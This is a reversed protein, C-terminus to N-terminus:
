KKWAWSALVDDFVPLTTEWEQKPATVSAFLVQGGRMMAVQRSRLGDAGPKLDIRIGAEGDVTVPRTGALSDGYEGLLERRISGIDAEAPAPDELFRVSRTVVIRAKTADGATLILDVALPGVVEDELETLDLWGFPLEVSYAVPARGAAKRSLEITTPKTAGAGLDGGFEGAQDLADEVQSTVENTTDSVTKFISSIFYLGGGVIAIVFLLVVAGIIKGVHWGSGQPTLERAAQMADSLSAIGSFGSTGPAAPAGGTQAFGASDVLPSASPAGAVPVQASAVTPAQAAQTTAFRDWDFILRSPNNPDVKVPVRSQPGVRSAFWFPVVERHTTTTPAFGSGTVELDFAYMPQNNVMTGTEHVARIVAEGPIGTHYIRARRRGRVKLFVGIVFLVIGVGLLIVASFDYGGGTGPARRAAVVSGIGIALEVFSVFILWTGATGAAGHEKAKQRGAASFQRAFGIFMGVVMVALPIVVIWPM